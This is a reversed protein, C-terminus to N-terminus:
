TFSFELLLREVPKHPRSSFECRRVNYLHNSEAKKIFQLAETFPLVIAFVGDASIFKLVAQLLEDFNLNQTHRVTARKETPPLWSNVFFPPNSVILDFKQHSQFEQISTQHVRIREAWPSRQVNERAQQADEPQIEVADILAESSTRQALMLAIVGSGTGIDLINKKNTVDVWAGLLVGDTGVKHTSGHQSITFQKFHFDKIKKM